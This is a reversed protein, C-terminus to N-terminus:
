INVIFWNVLGNIFDKVVQIGKDTGQLKNTYLVQGSQFDTIEVEGFVADYVDDAINRQSYGYETWASQLFLGGAGSSTIERDEWVPKDDIKVTIKNGNLTVDLKRDGLENIQITPRYEEAGDEVSKVEVKSAEEALKSYEVSQSHSVAYRAFASYEGALSDRKDEEVSVKPIEDFDYLDMEELQQGNEILYLVNNLLRIEIGGARDESSRFFVSQCGLKNGLLRASFTYDQPLDRKLELVGTDKPISTLAILEDNRKFEAAGQKTEWNEKEQLDGDVFIINAKDNEPLDDWVRMLLHNTYWNAQPELRTLDYISSARNNLSFGERNFNMTFIETMGKENEASVKANEGFKGTNSHLLVYAGPVEGLGQNYETQMLKYEGAIREKMQSNTEKPIDNADRIYDMLFHNYDRGLYQAMISYETSELEGLYRDYRDFVNIYSLRYGNSGIEWFSTDVLKLLDEPMLFYTDKITFKDAYTFMTAKYNYREMVKQSYVSTDHRGDEFMLYMAKDPLPTGEKYYKEIDDQTITVYGLDHLAKLHEDLKEESIRSTTSQRDVGFYSLAIFGHDDGSVVSKDSANFPAYTIFTFLQSIILAAVAVLIALQILSSILKRVDKKTEIKYM